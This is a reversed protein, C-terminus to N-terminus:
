AVSALAEQLEARDYVTDLRTVITGTADAVFLTPEYTLGYAEPAASLGGATPDADGRPDAYVEAHVATVTRFDPLAEVLLDLVPGCIATQCFEPTAILFAVPGGGGLAERLTAAHLACAPTRTCIPTVGRDNGRTPTDLPPLAQGAGPVSSAEGVDFTLVNFGEEDAVALEYIGAESPTFRVPYYPTPVGDDHPEIEVMIPEGGDRRVRFQRPALGERIPVGENDALAVPVRQESGTVLVGQPPLLGLLVGTLDSGDGATGSSSTGGDDGGGCATLFALAAGGALVSRRSLRPTTM